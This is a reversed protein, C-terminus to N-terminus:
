PLFILNRRRCDLCVKNRFKVRRPPTTAGLMRMAIVRHLWVAARIRTGNPGEVMHRRYVYGQEHLYWNFRKLDNDEPDLLVELHYNAVKVTLSNRRRRSTPM